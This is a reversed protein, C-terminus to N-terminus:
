LNTNRLKTRKHIDKIATCEVNFNYKPLTNGSRFGLIKNTTLWFDDIACFHTGYLKFRM